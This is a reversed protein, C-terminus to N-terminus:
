LIQRSILHLIKLYIRFHLQTFFSFFLFLLSFFFFENKQSRDSKSLIKVHFPVNQPFAHEIPRCCPSNAYRSARRYNSSTWAFKVPLSRTQSTTCASLVRAHGWFTNSGKECIGGPPISTKACTCAAPWKFRPAEGNHVCSSVFRGRGDERPLQLDVSTTGQKLIPTVFVGKM